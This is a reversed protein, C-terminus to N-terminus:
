KSSESIECGVSFMEAKTTSNNKFKVSGYYGVLSSVNVRNDKAFLIFNSVTPAATDDSIECTITTNGTFVSASINTIKGITTLSAQNANIFGGNSFLDDSPTLYYAIDGVQLSPIAFNASGGTGLPGLLQDESAEIDTGAIINEQGEETSLEILNNTQQFTIDVQPM